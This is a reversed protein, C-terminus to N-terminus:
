RKGIKITVDGHVITIPQDKSKGPEDYTLRMVPKLTRKPRKLKPTVHVPSRCEDESTIPEPEPDTEPAVDPGPHEPLNDEESHHEEPQSIADLYEPGDVSHRERRQLIEEVFRGFRRDPRTPWEYELDSSDMSADLERSVHHDTTDRKHRNLAQSRTVARKPVNETNDLVPIRVLDGIPLLNDRHLTKLKGSGNEQKVRYVPLNTMKNVVVYPVDYWRNELKHKGKLGLNKLLVRDGPELNHCRLSKDYVRKNQQHKKDSAATAMKYAKQLNEKLETVYASHPQDGGGDPCTGFCVDLAPTELM